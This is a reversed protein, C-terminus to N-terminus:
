HGVLLETDGYADLLYSGPDAQDHVARVAHGKREAKESPGAARDERTEAQVFAVVANAKWSVASVRSGSRPGLRNPSGAPPAARVHDDFTVLEDAALDVNGNERVM